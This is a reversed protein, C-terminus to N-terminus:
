ALMTPMVRVPSSGFQGAGIGAGVIALADVLAQVLDNGLHANRGDGTVAARLQEFDDAQVVFDDIQAERAGGAANVADTECLEFGFLLREVLKGPIRALGDGLATQQLVDVAALVVGVIRVHHVLQLGRDVAAIVGQPFLVRVGDVTAGCSCQAIQHSQFWAVAISM